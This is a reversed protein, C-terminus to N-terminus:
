LRVIVNSNGKKNVTSSASSVSASQISTDTLPQQSVASDLSLQHIHAKHESSSGHPGHQSMSQRIPRFPIITTLTPAPLERPQVTTSSGDASVQPSPSGQKSSSPSTSPSRSLLHSGSRNPQFSLSSTLGAEDFSGARTPSFSVPTQDTTDDAIVMKTAFSKSPPAIKGNIARRLDTLFLPLADFINNFEKLLKEIVKSANVTDNMSSSWAAEAPDQVSQQRTPAPHASPQQQNQARYSSLLLTPGFIIALNNLTMQNEESHSAVIKLHQLLLGCTLYNAEPLRKLALTLEQITLQDDRSLRLLHESINKTFLPEPLQILYNKVIGTLVHPQEDDLNLETTLGEELARCVTEIQKKSGPVRYIGKVTLCNREIAAICRQLISPVPQGTMTLHTALDIGFIPSRRRGDCSGALDSCKRHFVLGCQKLYFIFQNVMLSIQLLYLFCVKDCRVGNEFVASARCVTCKASSTRLKSLHHSTGSGAAHRGKRRRTVSANRGRDDENHVPPSSSRSPSEDDSDFSTIVTLPVRFARPLPIM